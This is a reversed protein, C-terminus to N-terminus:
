CDSPRYEQTEQGREGKIREVLTRANGALVMGAM